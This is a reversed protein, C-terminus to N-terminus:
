LIGHNLWGSGAGESVPSLDGGRPLATKSVALSGLRAAACSAFRAAAYNAFRHSFTYDM